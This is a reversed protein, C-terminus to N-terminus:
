ANLHYAHEDYRSTRCIRTEVLTEYDTGNRRALGQGLLGFGLNSYVFKVGVDRPLEYSSLFSYLQDETYDIYPNAPDKPNFILRCVRCGRLTRPWIWWRSKSGGRQPIKATTPVYKAIPDDLKVEGRQAMDALLLATFLKTISGIEFLTDGDLARKDGKELSGYSVIRRGKADISGSSM